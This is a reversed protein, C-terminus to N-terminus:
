ANVTLYSPYNVLTKKFAVQAADIGDEGLNPLSDFHVRVTFSFEDERYSEVFLTFDGLQCSKALAKIKATLAPPRSRSDKYTALLDIGLSIASDLNVDLNIGDLKEDPFSADLLKVLNAYFLGVCHGVAVPPMLENELLQKVKM